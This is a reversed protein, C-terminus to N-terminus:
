ELFSELNNEYNNLMSKILEPDVKDKSVPISAQLDYSRQTVYNVVTHVVDRPDYKQRGLEYAAMCCYFKFDM